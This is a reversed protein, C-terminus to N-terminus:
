EKQVNGMAFSTSKNGGRKSFPVTLRKETNVLQTFDKNEIEVKQNQAASKSVNNNVSNRFEIARNKVPTEVIIQYGQKKTSSTIISDAHLPSTMSAEKQQYDNRINIKHSKKLGIKNGSSGIQNRTSVKVAPKTTGLLETDM